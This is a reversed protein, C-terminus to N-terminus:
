DTVSRRTGDDSDVDQFGQPVVLIEPLGWGVGAGGGVMFTPHLHHPTMKVHVNTKTEGSLKVM